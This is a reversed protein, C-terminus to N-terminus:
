NAVFLLILLMIRIIYIIILRVRSDCQKYEYWGYSGPATSNSHSGPIDYKIIKGDSKFLKADGATLSDRSDEANVLTFCFIAFFTIFTIIIM